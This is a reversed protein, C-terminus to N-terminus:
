RTEESFSRHRVIHGRGLANVPRTRSYSPPESAEASPTTDTSTGDAADSGSGAMAICNPGAKRVQNNGPLSDHAPHCLPRTSGCWGCFFSFGEPPSFELTPCSHPKRSYLRTRPKGMPFLMCTHTSTARSVNALDHHAFEGLITRGRRVRMGVHVIMLGTKMWGMRWVGDGM